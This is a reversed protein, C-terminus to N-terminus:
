YAMERPDGSFNKLKELIGFRNLAAQALSRLPIGFEEFHRTITDVSCQYHKAMQLTSGGPELYLDRLKSEPIRIRRKNM